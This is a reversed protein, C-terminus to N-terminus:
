ESEVVNREKVELPPLPLTLTEVRGPHVHVADLLTAHIVIVEPVLPLPPPVTLKLTLEFEVEEYLIPFKVIAFWVTM